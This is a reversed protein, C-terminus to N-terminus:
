LLAGFLSSCPYSTSMFDVRRQPHKLLLFGESKYVNALSSTIDSPVKHCSVDVIGLGMKADPNEILLAVVMGDM